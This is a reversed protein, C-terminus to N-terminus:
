GRILFTNVRYTLSCLFALCGARRYYAGISPIRASDYRNEKDRQQQEKQYQQRTRAFDESSVPVM